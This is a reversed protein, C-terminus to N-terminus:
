LGTISALCTVTGAYTDGGGAANVPVTVTIGLDCTAAAGTGLQIVVPGNPDFYRGTEEWFLAVSNFSCPLNGANAGILSTPLDFDMQVFGGPDGTIAFNMPLGTEAGNIVPTVLVTANPDAILTYTYGRSLNDITGASAVITLTGTVSATFTAGSSATSVPQAISTCALAFVLAFAILLM